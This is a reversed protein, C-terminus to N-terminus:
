PSIFMHDIATWNNDPVWLKAYKEAAEKTPFRIADWPNITVGLGSDGRHFLYEAPSFRELLWFVDKTPRNIHVKM